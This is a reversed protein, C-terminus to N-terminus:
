LLQVLANLQLELNFHQAASERIKESMQKLENKKLDVLLRNLAKFDGPEVVYGLQYDQVVQEGEGGAFYLMPLGGLAMEYIKSPTSGYIACTLPVIALDYSGLQKLLHKRSVEGHYFIPKDSNELYEQLAQQEAGGGYIHLERNGLEINECLKVIGQAIGLLGAYVLKIPQEVDSEDSDFNLRSVQPLNRYLFTQQKPNVELVRAIIEKSQGLVLHAKQYIYRELRELLAYIRGKQLAGLELGASPWLDSVNLILKRKNRNFFFLASASLILPPSQIIIKEAFKGSHLLRYVGLSFSFSLMAFLRKFKQNSNSPFIYLRTVPIREYHETHFLKGRYGEFIRGKPYNPLPCIVRVSYDRKQLGLALQAIRNSAAGTEPPFYNTILTIAKM